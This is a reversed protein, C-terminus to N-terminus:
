FSLGDVYSRGRELLRGKFDIAAQSANVTASPGTPLPIGRVVLNGALGVGVVEGQEVNPFISIPRLDEIASEVAARLGEPGDWIAAPMPAVLITLYYPSGLDRESSFLREIFAFAGFISQNIDLGGWADRVQVQRVGPVLSIAVEIADARWVSPPPRLLLDRYRTDPWQLEGGSLAATHLITVDLGPTAAKVALFDSLKDDLQNWSGIKEAPNSPDLNHEPGPYFAVVPVDVTQQTASLTVTQDSAVHHGGRTLMRAGRPIELEWDGSPLTGVLTLAVSGRAELYPRALGLEEGLRGLAEGSASSVFSDDYFTALAAWT